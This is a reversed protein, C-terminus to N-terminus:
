PTVEGALIGNAFDKADELAPGSPTEEGDLWKGFAEVARAQAERTHIQLTWDLPKGCSRCAPSTDEEAEEADQRIHKAVACAPCPISEKAGLDSSHEYLFGSGGCRRCKGVASTLDAM